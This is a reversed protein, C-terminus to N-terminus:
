NAPNVKHQHLTLTNGDPDSILALRCHPFDQIDSVIRVQQQKLYSVASDLDHVELCAQGGNADPMWHEFAKALALTQGALDYEMWGIDDGEGMCVTETLGLIEGYFWRAKNFDTVSYGVFALEKFGIGKMKRTTTQTTIEGLKNKHVALALINKCLTSRM